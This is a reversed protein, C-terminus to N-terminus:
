EAAFLNNILFQVSSSHGNGPANVVESSIVEGNEIKYIKFEKCHGFHAYVDGNEHTVAIKM